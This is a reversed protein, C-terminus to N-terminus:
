FDDLAKGKYSDVSRVNLSGGYYGNHEVRMEISCIGKDTRIRHGWSDAVEYDSIEEHAGDITEVELIVGNKLADAGSVHQIFCYACCQGRPELMVKQGGSLSLYINEKDYFAEEVMWGYLKEFRDFDDGLYLRDM